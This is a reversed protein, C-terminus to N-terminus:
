GTTLMGSAIGTATERILYDDHEDMALIQIINLPNIMPGRLRISEKLWPRFWLLDKEGSVYRVLQCAARYEQTFSKDFRKILEPALDSHQLYLRWIPLEVKSLTFGLLKIFSRFLPVARYAQQLTKLSAEDQKFEGWATGIGWWTPFLVRTQTWCIVWPIARLADVSVGQSRKSPRSGFMLKSLYPYITAKDIMHLFDNDQIQQQYSQCTIDALNAILKAYKPDVRKVRKGRSQSLEHALKYLQSYMIEPTAFSREVMEGQLTTKYVAFSSQPWWATQEELSGGGRDVSGGSGHFFIPKVTYERCIKDIKQMCEAIALRSSLVGMGKSSDSYGLMVEFKNHWRQKVMNLFSVRAFAQKLIVPALQLAHQTEFLPVVRITKRSFAKRTLKLAADIDDLSETMSIILGKSYYEPDVQQSLRQLAQLMRLIAPPSSATLAQHIQSADERLELPVVLGPFITLITQVALLEPHMSGVLRQYDNQLTVVAKEFAQLRGGDGNRLTELASLLLECRCLQKRLTIAKLLEITQAVKQLRIGVLKALRQRAIQLVHLMVKEDVGPHGDKDGGVWTRVRVDVNHQQVELLTTFVDPRLIISFIHEAEDEVSPRQHRAVPVLWALKLLHKLQLKWDSLLHPQELINICCSQIQQFIAINEPARAETPHATLVFVITRAQDTAIERESNAQRLRVSRYANECANILELMLTFSHAIVRRQAVPTSQLYQYCQTLLQAKASASSSRYSVMDQRLKDIQRFVKQGAQESIVEGLLAVSDHVLHRLLTPLLQKM